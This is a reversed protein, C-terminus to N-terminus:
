AQKLSQAKTPQVDQALEVVQEAPASQTNGMFKGGPEISLADSYITGTVCGKGLIEIVNAHCVGDVVGNVIVKDAFVEGKVSGTESIILTKSVHL